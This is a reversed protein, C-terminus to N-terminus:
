AFRRAPRSKKEDEKQKEREQKEQKLEGELKKKEDNKRYSGAPVLVVM